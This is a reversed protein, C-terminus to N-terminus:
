VWPDLRPPRHEGGVSRRGEAPVMLGPGRDGVRQAPALCEQVVVRAVPEDSGIPSGPSGGRWRLITPTAPPGPAAASSPSLPTADSRRLRQVRGRKSSMVTVHVRPRPDSLGRQRKTLGGDLPLPRLLAPLFPRDPAHVR